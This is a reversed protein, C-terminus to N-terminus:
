FAYKLGMGIGQLKAGTWCHPANGNPDFGSQDPNSADHCDTTVSRGGAGLDYHAFRGNVTTAYDLYWSFNKDVLHKWAVTYMNATNNAGPFFGNADALSGDPNHQGPDGQAKNAHAWGLHVSDNDTIGQSLALWYGTRQRENQDALAADVHRKMSEWIASVTTQTPFKYQIGVKFADEDAIDRPDYAPLDSTRNVKKHMEYAGTLYVPGSEWSVSMSYANGYSGDNCAVPLAGSGPLNGGACEPEGVPLDHELM